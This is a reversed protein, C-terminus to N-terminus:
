GNQKGEIEDLYVNINGQLTQNISKFWENFILGTKNQRLETMFKDKDKDFNKMNGKKAIYYEMQLEPESIIVSSSIFQRLKYFAIEKRRSEEFEQPTTHLVEFLVRIYAQRSFQGNQQFAPYRRLDALLEGDAVTIGYKKAEQWFVEEQILDQLVEQRKVAMVEDTVDVKNSRMNEITRNLYKIYTRYSIKTGNIVAVTDSDRKSFAYSGFGIFSGALFAGLTIGFLLRMNKRLFEMM